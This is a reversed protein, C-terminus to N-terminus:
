AIRLTRYSTPLLSPISPNGRYAPHLHTPWRTHTATLSKQYPKPHEPVKLSSPTSRFSPLRVTDHLQQRQEIPPPRYASIPSEGTRLLADVRREECCCSLLSSLVACGKRSMSGSTIIVCAPAPMVYAWRNECAGMQIHLSTTVAEGHDEYRIM